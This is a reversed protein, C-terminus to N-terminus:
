IRLSLSHLTCILPQDDFDLGLEVLRNKMQQAAKTTFAVGLIQDKETLNNKLLYMIRYSLVDTKGTGPGALALLPYGTCEVIDRQEATLSM